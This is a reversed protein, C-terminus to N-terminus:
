ASQSPRLIAAPFRHTSVRPLSPARWNGAWYRHRKHRLLPRDSSTKSGSQAHMRLFPVARAKGDGQGQLGDDSSFQRHCPSPVRHRVVTVDTKKETEKAKEKEEEFENSIYKSFNRTNTYRINDLYGSAGLGLGFYHENM